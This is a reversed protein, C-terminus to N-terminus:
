YCGECAELLMFSQFKDLYVETLLDTPAIGQEEFVSAFGGTYLSPPLILGCDDYCLQALRTPRDFRVAVLRQHRTKQNSSAGNALIM